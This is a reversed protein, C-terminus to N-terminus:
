YGYYDPDDFRDKYLNAVDDVNTKNVATDLTFYKGTRSCSVVVSGNKTKTNDIQNPLRVEQIVDTFSARLRRTQSPTITPTPTPTKTPTVSKTPTQTPTPTATPAHISCSGPVYIITDSLPVSVCSLICGESVQDSDLYSQDSQDIIGSALTSICTGCTGARCVYPLSINNQEAADLIYTDPGCSITIPDGSSKIITIKLPKTPTPTPTNRTPTPTPTQTQTPTPTPISSDYVFVRGYLVLGDPTSYSFVGKGPAGYGFDPLDVSAQISHSVFRTQAESVSLSNPPIVVGFNWRKDIWGNTSASNNGSTALTPSFGVVGAIRSKWEQSVMWAGAPFLRKETATSVAPHPQPFGTECGYNCIFPGPTNYTVNSVIDAYTISFSRLIHDGPDLEMIGTSVDFYVSADKKITATAYPNQLVLGSNLPNLILSFYPGYGTPAPTYTEYGHYISNSKAYSTLVEKANSSDISRISSLCALVGAVQPSAMSTGSLYNLFSNGTLDRSDNFANRSNSSVAGLIDTGPAWIDVGPGKNSFNAISPKRIPDISSSFNENSLAGVVITKPTLPTGGRMYYHEKGDYRIIKNNYNIDGSAALYRNDNAAACIVTVGEDVLDNIDANIQDLVVDDYFAYQAYAPGDFWIDTPDIPKDSCAVYMRRFNFGVDNFSITGNTFDSGLIDDRSHSNPDYYLSRIRLENEFVIPSPTKLCVCYPTDKFLCNTDVEPTWLNPHMDCCYGSPFVPDGNDWKPPECKNQIHDFIFRGSHEINQYVISKIEGYYPAPPPFDCKPYHCVYGSPLPEGSPYTHIAGIANAVEGFFKWSCNVITPRSGQKSRHFAKVYDFCLYPSIQGDFININYINAKKAWGQTNGAATSAVHTGHDIGQENAGIKYIYLSPNYYGRVEPDHQFWNYPIFRSGGTGDSNVAFEPHGTYVPGDIIVIDVNQGLANSNFNIDFVLDPSIGTQLPIYFPIEVESGWTYGVPNTVKGSPINEVYGIDSWNPLIGTYSCYALGWNKSSRHSSSTYKSEKSCVANSQIYSSPPPIYNLGTIGCYQLESAAGGSPCCYWNSPYLGDPCETQNNSLVIKIDKQEQIGLEISEIRPDNKLIEAESHTLEYYTVRSSPKRECCNVSRHPCCDNIGCGDNEMDLYLSDLDTYNKVVIAYQKTENM